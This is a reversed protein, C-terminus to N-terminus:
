NDFMNRCKDIIESFCNFSISLEKGNVDRCHPCSEQNSFWQDICTKCGLVQKCCMSMTINSASMHRCVLCNFTRKIQCGLRSDAINTPLNLAEEASVIISRELTLKVGNIVEMLESPLTVSPQNTTVDNVDDGEEEQPIPLSQEKVAFVKRSNVRWFSLCRTSESDEIRLLNSHIVVLDQCDFAERTMDNIDDVNATSETLNFFQMRVQELKKNIINALIVKLSYQELPRKRSTPLSPSSSNPTRRFSGFISSPGPNNAQHSYMNPTSSSSAASSQVLLSTSSEGEVKFFSGNEAAELCEFRGTSPSPFESAGFDETIYISSLLM